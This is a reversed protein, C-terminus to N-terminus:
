LECVILHGCLDPPTCSRCDTDSGRRYSMLRCALLLIHFLKSVYLFGCFLLELVHLDSYTHQFEFM